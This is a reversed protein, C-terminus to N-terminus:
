MKNWKKVFPINTVIPKDFIKLKIDCHFEDKACFINMKRVEDARIDTNRMLNLQKAEAIPM